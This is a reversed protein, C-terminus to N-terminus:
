LSPIGLRIAPEYSGNLIKRIAVEGYGLPTEGRKTRALEVAMPKIGPRNKPDPWKKKAKALVREIKIVLLADHEPDSRRASRSPVHEAKDADNDGAAPAVGTRPPESLRALLTERDVYLTGSTRKEPLRQRIESVCLYARNLEQSNDLLSGLSSNYNFNLYPRTNIPRRNSADLFAQVSVKPPPTWYHEPIEILKWAETVIWSKIHGYRLAANLESRTAVYRRYAAQEAEYKPSKADPWELVERATLQKLSGLCRRLDDPEESALLKLKEVV